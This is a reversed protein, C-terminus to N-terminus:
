EVSFLEADLEDERKKCYKLFEGDPKFGGDAVLQRLFGQLGPRFFMNKRGGEMPDLSMTLGSIHAQEGEEFRYGGGLATRQFYVRRQCKDCEKSQCIFDFPKLSFGCEGCFNEPSEQRSEPPSSEKESM